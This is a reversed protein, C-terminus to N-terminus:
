GRALFARVAERDRESLNSFAIGMGAAVVQPDRSVRVVKCRARVPPGGPLQFEVELEEGVEFLLDSRLFAGGVSLDRTDFRITGLVRNDSDGVQVPLELEKREHVRHEAGTPNSM